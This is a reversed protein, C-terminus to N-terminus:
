VGWPQQPKVEASWHLAGKGPFNRVGGSCQVGGKQLAAVRIKPVGWCPARDQSSCQDDCRSSFALWIPFGLVMMQSARSPTPTTKIDIFNIM